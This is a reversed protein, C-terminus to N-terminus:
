KTVAIIGFIVTLIAGLTALTISTNNRSQSKKLEDNRIKIMNSLESIKRTISRSDKNESFALLDEFISKEIPPLDSYPSEEDNKKIFETIKEKWELIKENNTNNDLYEKNKSTLLVLFERLTKSLLSKNYTKETINKIIGIHLNIVDDLTSITESKLGSMLVKFFEKSKENQRLKRIKRSQSYYAVLAGYSLVTILIVFIELDMEIAM